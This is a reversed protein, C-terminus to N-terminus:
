LGLHDALLERHDAPTGFMLETSKARKFYLHADHEWTFGIGGHIQINNAASHFFAESCYAKAMLGAEAVDDPSNAVAWAAHAAASRAAELEVLMDACMHKIAQFSGIARGFQKRDQAYAVAMELVREAGGVQEAALAVRAIRLMSEIPESGTTGLPEAPTSSLSVTAQPRTIDLAVLREIQVDAAQVLYLGVREGDRAAVLLIDALHGDTVYSKNGDVTYGSGNRRAVSAISELDWGGEPEAIAVSAIVEGSAIGSLWEKKQEITGGALVAAAALVSSSLYPVPALVRGMEHLLIATEEFTFGSGGFEEPIHMGQWGQTAMAEWLERDYGPESEAVQRVRDMPSARELFRRAGERLMQREESVTFEM